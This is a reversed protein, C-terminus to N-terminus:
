RCDTCHCQFGYDQLFSSRSEWQKPTPDSGFYSLFLEDNRGVAALALFHLVFNDRNIAKISPRCRHNACSGLNYLGVGEVKVGPPGDPLDIDISIINQELAGMLRAYFDFHIYSDLQMSQWMDQGVALQLAPHLFHWSEEVILRSKTRFTEPDNAEILVANSLSQDCMEEDEHDDDKEDGHETDKECDEGDEDDDEDNDDESESPFKVVEWWPDFGHLALLSQAAQSFPLNNQIMSQLISAILKAGMLPIERQVEVAHRRFLLLPHRDETIPGVCLLAHGARKEDMERCEDSCYISFCNGRCLPFRGSQVVVEVPQDSLPRLCYYCCVGRFQCDLHRHSVLPVESLLIEGAPSDILSFLGRGHVKSPAGQVSQQSIVSGPLM